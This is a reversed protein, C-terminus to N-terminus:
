ESVRHHCEYYRGSAVGSPDAEPRKSTARGMNRVARVRNPQEVISRYYEPTGGPPDRTPASLRKGAPGM